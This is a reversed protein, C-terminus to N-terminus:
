KFGNTLYVLAQGAQLRAQEDLPDSGLFMDFVARTLKRSRWPGAHYRKRDRLNGPTIVAGAVFVSQAEGTETNQVQSCRHVRVLCEEHRDIVFSASHVRM